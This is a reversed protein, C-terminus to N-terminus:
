GVVVVSAGVITSVVILMRNGHFVTYKKCLHAVILKDFPDRSWSNRYTKFILENIKAYEMAEKKASPWTRM